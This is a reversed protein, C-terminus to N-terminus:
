LRPRPLDLPMATAALYAKRRADNRPIEVHKRGVRDLRATRILKGALKFLEIRKRDYDIRRPFNGKKAVANVLSTLRVPKNGNERLTDLLVGTWWDDGIAQPPAGPCKAPMPSTFTAALSRRKDYVEQPEIIINM